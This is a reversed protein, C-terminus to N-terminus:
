VERKEYLQKSDIWLATHDGAVPSVEVRKGTDNVRIDLVEVLIHFSIFVENRLGVGMFLIDRVHLDPKHHYEIM